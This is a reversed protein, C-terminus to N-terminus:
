DEEWALGYSSLGADTGKTNICTLQQKNNGGNGLVWWPQALPLILIGGGGQVNWDMQFLNNGPDATLTVPTTYTPIISAAATAYNPNNYSLVIATGPTAGLTSPRSWRTRYGISSTGSGGWNVQTIRAFVGTTTGTELTWNGQTTSPTFSAGGNGGAFSPM